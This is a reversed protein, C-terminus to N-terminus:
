KCFSSSEKISRGEVGFDILKSMLSTALLQFYLYRKIGHGQGHAHGHGFIKKVVSPPVCSILSFSSIKFLSYKLGLKSGIFATLNSIIKERSAQVRPKSFLLAINELIARKNKRAELPFSNSDPGNMPLLNPKLFIVIFPM